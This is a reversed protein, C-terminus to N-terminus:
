SLNPGNKMVICSDKLNVIYFLHKGCQQSNYYSYVEVHCEFGLFM